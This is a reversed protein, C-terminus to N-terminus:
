DYLFYNRQLVSALDPGWIRLSSDASCTVIRENNYLTIVHEVAARHAKACNVLCEGTIVDWLSFGVGVASLLYRDDIPLLHQVAFTFRHDTDRYEQGYNLSKVCNLTKMSWLKIEGDLSASALLGSPTAALCCVAERHAKETPSSLTKHLTLSELDYIVACV